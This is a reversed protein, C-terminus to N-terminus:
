SPIRRGHIGKIEPLNRHEHEFVAGLDAPDFGQRCQSCTMLDSPWQLELWEPFDGDLWKEMVGYVESPPEEFLAANASWNRGFLTRALAQGWDLRGGEKDTVRDGYRETMIEIVAIVNLTRGGASNRVHWPLKAVRSRMLKHNSIEM